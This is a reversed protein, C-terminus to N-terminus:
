SVWSTVAIFGADSKSGVVLLGFSITLLNVGTKGRKEDAVHIQKLTKIPEITEIRMKSQGSNYSQNQNYSVCNFVPETPLVFWLSLM